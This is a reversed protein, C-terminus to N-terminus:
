GSQADAESDDADAADENAAASAPPTPRTLIFVSVALMITGQLALVWAPLGAILGLILTAGMVSLAAIKARRGIAGYRQWNTILPGFQRHEILWRHFRPSSRAFCFAALLLFPTAPLLPLIAGAIGFGTAVFGSALWLPRM